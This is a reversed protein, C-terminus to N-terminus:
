FLSGSEVQNHEFGSLNRTTSNNHAGDPRGRHSSVLPNLAMSYDGIYELQSAIAIASNNGFGAINNIRTIEAEFRNIPVTL